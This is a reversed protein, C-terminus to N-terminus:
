KLRFIRRVPSYESSIPFVEQVLANGELFRKSAQVPQGDRKSTGVILLANGDWKGTVLVEQGNEAITQSPVDTSMDIKTKFSKLGGTMTITLKKGDQELIHSILGAGYNFTKATKQTIWDVGADAMIDSMNGECRDLVWCGILASDVENSWPDEIPCESSTDSYSSSESSLSTMSLSGYGARVVEVVNFDIRRLWFDCGEVMYLGNEDDVEAICTSQGVLGPCIQMTLNNGLIVVASNKIPKSFLTTKLLVQQARRLLTEKQELGAAAQAVATANFWKRRQLELDLRATEVSQNIVQIMEVKAGELENQVAHLDRQALNAKSLPTSVADVTSSNYDFGVFEVDERPEYYCAWNGFRCCPDGKRKNPPM